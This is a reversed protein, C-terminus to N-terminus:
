PSLLSVGFKDMLQKDIQKLEKNHQDRTTESQLHIYKLIRRNETDNIPIIKDFICYILYLYYNRSIDNNLEKKILCVLSFIYYAEDLIKKSLSPPPVGTILYLIMPANKYLKNKGLKKLIDRIDSITANQLLISQKELHLKIKRLLEKKNKDTGLENPSEQALIYTIHNNYHRIINTNDKIVHNQNNVSDNKSWFEVNFFKGCKECCYYDDIYILNCNCMECIINNNLTILIDRGRECSPLLSDIKIGESIQHLKYETIYDKIVDNLKSLLKYRSVESKNNNVFEMMLEQKDKKFKSQLSHDNLQKGVLNLIHLKEVINHTIKDNIIM